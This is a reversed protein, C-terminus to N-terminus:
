FVFSGDTGRTGDYNVQKSVLSAVPNGALRGRFYSIPVDVTLLASLVPHSTTPDFYTAAEITGDRNGGYRMFASQTVDTVDIILPGGSIKGLARIDGSLDNGSIAVADGLGTQKAM